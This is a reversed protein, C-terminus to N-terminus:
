IPQTLNQSSNHAIVIQYQEYEPTVFKIFQLTYNRKAPLSQTYKRRRRDVVLGCVAKYNSHLCFSHRRIRLCFNAERLM